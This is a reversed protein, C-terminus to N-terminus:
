PALHVAGTVLLSEVAFDGVVWPHAQWVESLFLAVFAAVLLHLHAM